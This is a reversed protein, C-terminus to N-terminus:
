INLEALAYNLQDRNINASELDGRTRAYPRYDLGGSLRAELPRSQQYSRQMALLSNRVPSHYKTYWSYGVGSAIVLIISIAAARFFNKGGISKPLQKNSHKTHDSAPFAHNEKASYPFVGIPQRAQAITEKGLPFLRELEYREFENDELSSLRLLISLRTRCSECTFCHDDIEAQIDPSCKGIAYAAILTEPPHISTNLESDKM